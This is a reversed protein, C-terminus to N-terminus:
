PGHLLQQPVNGQGRGLGVSVNRVLPEAADVLLRMWAGSSVLRAPGGVAGARRAPYCVGSRGYPRARGFPPKKSSGDDTSRSHSSNLSLADASAALPEDEVVRRQDLVHGAPHRDTQRRVDLLGVQHGVADEAQDVRDLFVVEFPPTLNSVQAIERILPAIMPAM